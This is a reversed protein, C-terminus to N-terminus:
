FPQMLCLSQPRSSTWSRGLLTHLSPECKADDDILPALLRLAASSQVQYLQSGRTLQSSATQRQSNCGCDSRRQLDGSGPQSHGCQVQMLGTASKDHPVQSMRRGLCLAANAWTCECACDFPRLPISTGTQGKRESILRNNAQGRYRWTRHRIRDHGHPLAKAIWTIIYDLQLLLM